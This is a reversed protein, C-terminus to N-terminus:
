EEEEEDEDEYISYMTTAVIQGAEVLEDYEAQTLVVQKAPKDLVLAEVTALRTNINPILAVSAAMAASMFGPAATTAYPINVVKNVPTVSIGNIQFGTISGGDQQLQLIDIMNQYVQELQDKLDTAPIALRAKGEVYTIPINQQVSM